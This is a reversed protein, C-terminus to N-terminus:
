ALSASCMIHLALPILARKRAPRDMPMPRASSSGPRWWWRPLAPWPPRYAAPPRRTPRPAASGNPAPSATGGNPNSAPNSTPNHNSPNSTTDLGSSPHMSSAGDVVSSGPASSHPLMSEVRSVVESVVGGHSSGDNGKNRGCSAMLATAMALVLLIALLGITTHRKM